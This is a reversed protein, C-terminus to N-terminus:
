NRVFVAYPKILRAVLGIELPKVADAAPEAPEDLVELCAKDVRGQVYEDGRRGVSPGVAVRTYALPLALETQQLDGIALAFRSGLVNISPPIVDWEIGNASCEVARAQEAFHNSQMRQMCLHITQGRVRLTM